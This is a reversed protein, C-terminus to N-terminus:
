LPIQYQQLARSLYSEAFTVQLKKDQPAHTM